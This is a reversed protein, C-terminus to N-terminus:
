AAGPLCLLAARGARRGAAPEGRVSAGAPHLVLVLPEKVPFERAWSVIFEEADHDLDKEHFPSPDMTNFLQSVDRLNVEIRHPSASSKGAPELNMPGISGSGIFSPFPHTLSRAPHRENPIVGEPPAQEVVCGREKGAAYIRFESRTQFRPRRRATSSGSSQM